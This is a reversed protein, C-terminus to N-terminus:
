ANPRDRADNRARESGVGENSRTDRGTRQEKAASWAFSNVVERVRELIPDILWERIEQWRSTLWDGWPRVRVEVSELREPLTEAVYASVEGSVKDWGDLGVQALSGWSQAVTARVDIRDERLEKIVRAPVQTFAAAPTVLTLAVILTGVYAGELALRPRALLRQWWDAMRPAAVTARMVSDIFGPDPELEALRPLDEQLLSLARHLSGCEACSEVHMALVPDLAGLDTQEHEVLRGRACDCTDVGSASMIEMLLDDPAMLLEGTDAAALTHLERCSACTDMHVTMAEVQTAGLEGDLWDFLLEEFRACNM